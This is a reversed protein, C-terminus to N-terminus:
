LINPSDFLDRPIGLNGVSVAVSPKKIFLSKFIQAMSIIKLDLYEFIKWSFPLVQNKIFPKKFIQAM